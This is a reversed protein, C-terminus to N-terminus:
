QIRLLMLQHPHAPDPTPMPLTLGPALPPPNAINWTPPLSGATTSANPMLMMACLYASEFTVEDYVVVLQSGDQVADYGLFAVQKCRWSNAFPPAGGWLPGTYPVAELTARTLAEDIRPSAPWATWHSRHLETGSARQALYLVDVRTNGGIERAFVSPQYDGPQGFAPGRVFTQGADASVALRLGDRVEYAYFVRLSSGQGLVAVTPDMGLIREEDVLTHVFSEGYRRTSCRFETTSMWGVGSNDMRSCAYGIALDGGMSWAIGTTLPTVDANTAYLVEAPSFQFWTPSGFADFAVARGEVLVFDSGGEPRSRWAAVAISYDAAMAAQVLRTQTFGPLLAVEQAFTAGRDFSLRVRVGEAESRVVGLVNYLAVVEHDRWYSYGTPPLLAAGGTVVGGVAQHQLRQEYRPEATPDSRDGEYCVISTRDGSVAITPIGFQWSDSSYLTDRLIVGSAEPEGALPRNIASAAGIALEVVTVGSGETHVALVQNQTIRGQFTLRVFGSGQAYTWEGNSQLGQGAPILGVRALSLPDATVEAGGDRVHKVGITAMGAADATWSVFEFQLPTDAPTTLRYHSEVREFTTGTLDIVPAAGTAPEVVDTGATVALRATPGAPPTTADGSGSCAALISLVALFLARSPAKLMTAVMAM